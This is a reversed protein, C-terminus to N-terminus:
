MVPFYTKDIVVSSRKGEIWFGASSWEWDAIREVLGKRVPNNHIYEVQQRIRDPTYYNRDYGGGDQWVRYRPKDSGTELYKLGDSNNEKLFYIVSKSASLKISKIIGSIDYKENFPYIM